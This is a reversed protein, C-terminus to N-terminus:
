AGGDGAGARARWSFLGAREYLWPYQNVMKRVQTLRYAALAIAMVIATDVLFPLGALIPGRFLLFETLRDAFGLLAGYFAVQWMPRWTEALSQGTMFAAFGFLILTNFVFVGLSPSGLFESDM